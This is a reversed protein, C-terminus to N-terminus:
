VTAGHETDELFWDEVKVPKKGAFGQCRAPVFPALLEMREEYDWQPETGLDLIKGDLTMTRGPISGFRDSQETKVILQIEEPDDWNVKTRLHAVFGELDLYNVATGYVAASAGKYGGFRADLRVFRERKDKFFANVERINASYSAMLIMTTVVSM